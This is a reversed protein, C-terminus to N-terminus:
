FDQTAWDLFAKVVRKGTRSHPHVACYDHGLALSLEFPAVLRGSALEDRALWCTALNDSLAYFPNFLTRVTMGPLDLGAVEEDVRDARFGTVVVAERVGVSALNALQWHLVTRGSLEVLCKPRDDTLPSLRKGQGASLIVVKSQPSM